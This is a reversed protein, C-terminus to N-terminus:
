PKGSLVCDLLEAIERLDEPCHGILWDTLKASHEVKHFAVRTESLESFLDSLVKAGHINSIWHNPDDQIRLPSFYKQEQKKAEIAKYVEDEAVTTERFGKIQNMVNSVAMPNLLYNEYTRRPIFRARNKSRRRIDEQQADTRTERDLVFAIAPPILAVGTSLKEYIELVREADRRELDGTERIGVVATGMLRRKLIREIIATFCVEETQGEVWLINDAGFVDSLRAGVEALSMQLSKTHATDIPEFVSEGDLLRVM